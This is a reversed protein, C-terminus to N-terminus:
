LPNGSVLVNDDGLLQEVSDWIRGAFQYMVDWRDYEKGLIVHTEKGAGAAWGLELHGSRGAPLALIVTDCRELHRRDFAYVHKAAHGELAERYSNGKSIEYARWADDAKDGAAYWDDFVEYGAARLKEAIEPIEPNRLSGVLYITKM